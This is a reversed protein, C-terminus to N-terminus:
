VTRFLRNSYLVQIQQLFGYKKIFDNKHFTHNMELLKHFMKKKIEFIAATIWSKRFRTGLFSNVNPENERVLEWGIKINVSKEALM